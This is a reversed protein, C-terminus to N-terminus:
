CAGVGRRTVENAGVGDAGCARQGTSSDAESVNVESVDGYSTCCRWRCARANAIAFAVAANRERSRRVLIPVKSTTTVPRCCAPCCAAAARRVDVVERERLVGTNKFSRPQVAAGEYAHVCVIM